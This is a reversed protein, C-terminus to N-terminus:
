GGGWVMGGGEGLRAIRYIRFSSPFLHCFPRFLAFFPWKRDDGHSHNANLPPFFRALSLYSPKHLAADDSTRALM